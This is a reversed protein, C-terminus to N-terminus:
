QEHDFDVGHLAELAAAKQVMVEADKAVGYDAAAYAATGLTLGILATAIHQKM